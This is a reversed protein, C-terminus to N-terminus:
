RHAVGNSNIHHVAEILQTFLSIGESVSLNNNALYERLTFDYRLFVFITIHM